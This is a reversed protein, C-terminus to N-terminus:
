ENPTYTVLGQWEAFNGDQDSSFIYIPNDGEDLTITTQFKGSTNAKTEMNNVSIDANPVTEGSVTVKAVSLVQGDTPSTVTLKITGSIPKDDVVPVPETAPTVTQKLNKPSTLSPQSLYGTQSNRNQVTRYIAFGGVGITILILFAVLALYAKNM